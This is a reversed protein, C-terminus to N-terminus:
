TSSIKEVTLAYEGHMGVVKVDTGSSLEPGNTYAKINHMTGGYSVQIEGAGSNAAPIRLYVTSSHGIAEKLISTGDSRLGYIWKMLLLYSSAILVGVILGILASIGPSFQHQICIAGGFGLGLLIASVSKLSLLNVASGHGGDMDTSTDGAIDGHHLGFISLLTQLIILLFALFGISCFIQEALVQENWWETLFTFEGQGM